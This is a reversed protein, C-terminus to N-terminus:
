RQVVLPRGVGLDGAQALATMAESRSHFPGSVLRYLSGQQVIDFSPLRNEARSKLHNLISEANSRIAYAGFQLYYGGPTGAAKDASKDASTIAANAVAPKNSSDM